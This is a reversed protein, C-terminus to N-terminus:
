PQFSHKHAGIIVTWQLYTLWDNDKGDYAGDSGSLYSTGLRLRNYESLNYNLYAMWSNQPVWTRALGDAIGDSNADTQSWSEPRFWDYRIGPEWYKGIRYQAYIYAGSASSDGQAPGGAFVADPSFDGDTKGHLFEGGIELRDFSAPDPLWTLKFDATALQRTGQDGGHAYNM